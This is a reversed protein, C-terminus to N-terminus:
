AASGDDDGPLQGAKALCAFCGLGDPCVLLLHGCRTNRVATQVLFTLAQLEELTLPALATQLAAGVTAASTGSM